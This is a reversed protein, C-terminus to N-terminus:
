QKELNDFFVILRKLDQRTKRKYARFSNKQRFMKNITRRIKNFQRSIKGNDDQIAVNSTNQLDLFGSLLSAKLDRRSTKNKPAKLNKLTNFVDQTKETLSPSNTNNVNEVSIGAKPTSVAPTPNSQESHTNDDPENGEAELDEDNKNCGKGLNARYIIYDAANIVGDSNGDASTGPVVNKGFNENLVKHDNSNVCGNQDYDGPIGSVYLPNTILIGDRYHIGNISSRESTYLSHTLYRGNGSLVFDGYAQFDVVQQTVGSHVNHVRSGWTVFKGDASISVKEMIGDNPSATYIVKKTDTPRDYIVINCMEKGNQTAYRHFVITNGDNSMTADQMMEYNQNDFDDEQKILRTKEGTFTDLLVLETLGRSSPEGPKLAYPILVYRGDDSLSPATEDGWIGGLFSSEEVMLKTTIGTKFDALHIFQKGDPDFARYVMKTGNHSLKPFWTLPGLLDAEGTVLNYRFIYPIFSKRPSNEVYKRATAALYQGNGSISILDMFNDFDYPPPLEVKIRTDTYTDLVEHHLKNSKYNRLSNFIVYRGNGSIMGRGVFPNDTWYVDTRPFILKTGTPSIPDLLRLFGSIDDFDLRGNNSVDGRFEPPMGYLQQYRSPNMLGLAFADVDSFGHVDKATLSVKGDYNMDGRFVGSATDPVQSYAQSAPLTLLFVFLLIYSFFRTM